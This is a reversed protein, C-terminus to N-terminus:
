TDYQGIDFHKCINVTSVDAFCVTWIDAPIYPFQVFTCYQPVKEDSCKFILSKIKALSLHQKEEKVVTERM